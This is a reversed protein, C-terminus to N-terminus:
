SCCQQCGLQSGWVGRSGWAGMVSFGYPERLPFVLLYFGFFYSLFRNSYSFYLIDLFPSSPLIITHIQLVDVFMQSLCFLAVVLMHMPLHMPHSTPGSVLVEGPFWVILHAHTCM